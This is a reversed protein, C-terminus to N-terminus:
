FGGSEPSAGRKKFHDCSNAAATPPAELTKKQNGGKHREQGRSRSAAARRGSAGQMPGPCFGEITNSPPCPPPACSSRSQRSRSHELILSAFLVFARSTQNADFGPGETSLAKPPPRASGKHRAAGASDLTMPSPPRPAARPAPSRDARGNSGSRSAPRCRRAIRGRSM